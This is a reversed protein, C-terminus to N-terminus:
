QLERNKTNRLTLYYYYSNHDGMSTFIQPFNIDIKITEDQGISYILM